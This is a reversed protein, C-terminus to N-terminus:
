RILAGVKMAIARPADLPQVQRTDWPLNSVSAALGFIVDSGYLPACKMDDM